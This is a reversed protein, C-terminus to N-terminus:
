QVQLYSILEHCANAILNLGEDLASATQGDEMFRTLRINEPLIKLIKQEQRVPINSNTCIVCVHKCACACNCMDNMEQYATGYLLYHVGVSYM